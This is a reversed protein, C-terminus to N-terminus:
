LPAHVLAREPDRERVREAADVGLRLEGEGPGDLLVAELTVLPNREDAGKPRGPGRRLPGLHEPPGELEQPGLAPARRRETRERRPERANQVRDALRQVREPAERDRLLTERGGLAPAELGLVRRHDM